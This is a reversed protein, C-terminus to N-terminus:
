TAPVPGDTKELTLLFELGNRKTPIFSIIEYPLRLYSKITELMEYLEHDAFVWCHADFYADSAVRDRLISLARDRDHAHTATEATVKGDWISAADVRRANLVFDCIQSFSPRTRRELDAAILESLRSKSRAIDLCYRRDPYAIAIKGGPVLLRLNEKLWGIFNPIHELVHSAIVFDQTGDEVYSSISRGDTVIDIDPIDEPRIKENAECKKLLGERDTFDVYKVGPCVSKPVIVKDLPGYELGQGALNLTALLRRNRIKM